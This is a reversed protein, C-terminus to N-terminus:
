FAESMDQQNGGSTYGRDFSRENNLFEELDTPFREDRQTSIVRADTYYSLTLTSTTEVWGDRVKKLTSSM